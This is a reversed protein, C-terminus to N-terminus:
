RPALHKLQHWAERKENEDGLAAGFDDFLVISRGLKRVHGRANRSLGFASRVADSALADVSIVSIPDVLEILPRLTAKRRDLEAAEPAGDGIGIVFLSKKRYGMAVLAKAVAIVAPDGLLGEGRDGPQGLVVVAQAFPDGATYSSFAELAGLRFREVKRAALEARVHELGGRKVQKGAM